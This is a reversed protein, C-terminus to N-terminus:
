LVDTNKKPETIVSHGSFTHVAFYCQFPVLSFQGVHTFSGLRGLDSIGGQDCKSGGM